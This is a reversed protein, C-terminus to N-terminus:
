FGGGLAQSRGYPDHPNEVLPCIYHRHSRMSIGPLLELRIQKFSVGGEARSKVAELEQLPQELTILEQFQLAIGEM